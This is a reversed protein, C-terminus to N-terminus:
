RSICIRQGGLEYIKKNGGEQVAKWILEQNIVVIGAIVDVGYKFLVESLPVSPGLLVVEANRSLELLRPITKNILATGTILVLDQQPLICECATDPLDGPRPNRDLVTLKCLSALGEIKPFHGVVAVNKNYVDLVNNTFANFDRPNDQPDYYGPETITEVQVSNNLVSNIAALGLSADLMNWSKVSAALEKLPMGVINKLDTGTKGGKLTRALGVGKESRVATWHLGIMYDTVLMEESVLDILQDYLKWM